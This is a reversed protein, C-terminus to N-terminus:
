SAVRLPSSYGHTNSDGGIMTSKSQLLVKAAPESGCTVLNNVEPSTV